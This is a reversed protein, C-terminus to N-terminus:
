DEVFDVSYFTVEKGTNVARNLLDSEIAYQEEEELASNGNANYLKDFELTTGDSFEAVAHWHPRGEYSSAKVYNSPYKTFTRKM